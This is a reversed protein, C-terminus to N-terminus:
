RAADRAPAVATPAEYGRPTTHPDAAQDPPDFQEAAFAEGFLAAVADAEGPTLDVFDLKGPTAADRTAVGVEASGDAKLTLRAVVAGSDDRAELTRTEQITLPM